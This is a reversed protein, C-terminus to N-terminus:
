KKGYKHRDLMQSIRGESFGMAKAIDKGSVGSNKAMLILLNSIVDLSDKLKLFDSCESLRKGM